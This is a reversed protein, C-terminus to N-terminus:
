DLFLLPLKLRLNNVLAQHVYHQQTIRGDSHDAALQAVKHGQEAGLKAMEVLHTRRWAHPSQRLDGALGACAQLEAHCNLFHRYGCSQPLVLEDGPPKSVTERRVRVERLLKALQEHLPMEVPKSTKTVEASPVNLWAEGFVNEVHRWRLNCVTGARLGTYFFLALRTRWWLRHDIWAPLQPKALKGCASGIQRAMEISFPPKAEFEAVVEPVYPVPSLIGLSADRPKMRPGAYAVLTAIRGVIGAIRSSSLPEYSPHEDRRGILIKEGRKVGRRSFGWEPLLGVFDVTVEDGQSLQYLDADGTVDRWWRLSEHYCRITGPKRGGPRLKAKFYAGLVDDLRWALRPEREIAERRARQEPTENGPTPEPEGEFHEWFRVQLQYAGM